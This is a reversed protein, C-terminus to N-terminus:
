AEYAEGQTIPRLQQQFTRGYMQYNKPAAVLRKKLDDSLPRVIRAPIGAVLQNEDIHQGELVVAGAAILCSAGVVAGSLVTAGMGILCGDHITCGEAIVGHGVTVHAGILTNHAKNVHIVSNDQVNTGEGIVIRGMDGRLVAGFWISAGSKIIVDGIITANPAIFVDPAIQPVKKGLAYIM